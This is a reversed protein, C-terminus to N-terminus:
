AWLVQGMDLNRTGRWEHPAARPSIYAQHSTVPAPAPNLQAQSLPKLSPFCLRQHTSIDACVRVCMSMGNVKELHRPHHTQVSGKWAAMTEWSGTKPQIADEETDLTLPVNKRPIHVPLNTILIPEHLGPPRFDMIQPRCAPPAPSTTPSSLRLTSAQSM